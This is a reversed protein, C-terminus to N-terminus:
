DFSVPYWYGMQQYSYPYQAGQPQAQQAGVITNNVSSTQSNNGEVEKGWFCKVSSGNMEMNHTNEIAHTATAM